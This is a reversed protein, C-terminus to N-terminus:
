QFHFNIIMLSLVIQSTSKQPLASLKMVKSNCLTVRTRLKLFQKAIHPSHPFNTKLNIKVGRSFILNNINCDTFGILCDTSGIAFKISNHIIVISFSKFIKTLSILSNLKACNSELTVSM